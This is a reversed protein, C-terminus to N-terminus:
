QTGSDVGSRMENALRIARGHVDDKWKSDLMEMAATEYDGRELAALMKKFEMLRGIGMNFCMNALIRQRVEDLKEWWPLRHSLDAFVIELDEHLLYYAAGKSIGQELNHGIGITLIGKSDKYPKLPVVGNRCEDRELQEILRLLEM